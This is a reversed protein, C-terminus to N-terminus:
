KKVEQTVKIIKEVVKDLAKDVTEGTVQLNHPTVQKAILMKYMTDKSPALFALLSTAIFLVSFITIAIKIIKNEQSTPLDAEMLYLPLSCVLLVGLMGVYIPALQLKEVLEIWYFIMPDIIPEYM